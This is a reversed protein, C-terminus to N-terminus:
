FSNRATQYRYPSAMPTAALRSVPKSAPKRTLASAVPSSPVPAAGQNTAAADAASLAGGTDGAMGWFQPNQVYSNYASTLAGVTGSRLSQKQAVTNQAQAALQGLVGQGANYLETGYQQQNQGTKYGLDGSFIIGHAALSNVIGQQNLDRQKQLQAVTSNGAQTNQQAMAATLPNLGFGGKEALGPDGFQVIAQEQAARLADDLQQSGAQEAALAALYGPDTEFPNQLLAQSIPAAAPAAAPEPTSAAAPAPNWPNAAVEAPTTYAPPPKYTPGGGPSTVPYATTNRAVQASNRPRPM